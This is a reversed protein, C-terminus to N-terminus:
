AEEKRSVEYGMSELIKTARKITGQENLKNFFDSGLEEYPKGKKLVYYIIILISHAVAVSARNAGRRAAIRHYQASLYTDKTHSAAKASEVLTSRLFENGKRLASKKKVPVKM